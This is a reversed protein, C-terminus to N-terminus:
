YWQKSPVDTSLNIIVKGGGPLDDFTKSYVSNTIVHNDALTSDRLSISGYYDFAGNKLDHVLYTM